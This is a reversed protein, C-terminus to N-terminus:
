PKSPRYTGEGDQAWSYTKNEQSYGPLPSNGPNLSTPLEVAYNAMSQQRQHQNPMQPTISCLVTNALVEEQFLLLTSTCPSECSATRCRM